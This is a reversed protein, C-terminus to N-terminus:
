APSGEALAPCRLSQRRRAHLALVAGALVLRYAAYAAYGRRGVRHLVFRVSAAGTIAASAVGVLLPRRLRTLTAADIGALARAAAGVSIPVTMDVSFRAAAAREVGLARGATITAGSRSVGPALAVAQAFAMGVVPGTGLDALGTRQPGFHDALALAVGFVALLVAVRYPDTSGARLRDPRLGGVAVAPLESAVLLWGLRAAPDDRPRRRAGAFGAVDRLVAGGLRRVDARVHIGAGLATGVHLAADFATRAAPDDSDWGLLWPVLVLHGSSSVPAFETLGQVAGLLAARTTPGPSM